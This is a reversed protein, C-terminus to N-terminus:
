SYQELLDYPVETNGINSFEYLGATEGEFFVEFSELENDSTATVEFVEPGFMVEDEFRFTLGDQEVSDTDLFMVLEELVIEFPNSEEVGIVEGDIFAEVGEPSTLLFNEGDVYAKAEGVGPATVAVEYNDMESISAALADLDAEQQKAESDDVVPGETPDDAACGAVIVLLALGLIM